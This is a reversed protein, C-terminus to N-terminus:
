LWRSRPLIEISDVDGSWEIINTGSVLIPFEGNMNRNKLVNGLYADQLESDIVVESEGYPFTYDFIHIGNVSIGVTGSGHLVMKPKSDELGENFVELHKFYEISMVANNNNTIITTPYFSQLVDSLTNTAYYYTAVSRRYPEFASAVSGTELMPRITEDITRNSKVTAYIQVLTYEKSWVLKGSIYRRTGDAEDYCIVMTTNDTGGSIIYTAGDAFDFSKALIIHANTGSTGRLEITGDDNVAFQIGGNIKSSEYYPFPLLNKGRATIKTEGENVSGDGVTISKISANAGDGMEIRVGTATATQTEKYAENYKYKFPQVRFSITARRFRLLSKYDIKEVIKAKYVKTPENSFIVEGEGTFYKIVRDIDYNGRLGITVDKDYSQYGLEEFISGDRGDITTEKVKLKPKTIPPLDCILLGEINTSPVGRWIIDM